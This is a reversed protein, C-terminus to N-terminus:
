DQRFWDTHQRKVATWAEHYTLGERMKAHVAEQIRDRRREANEFRIREGRRQGINETISRTHLNSLQV